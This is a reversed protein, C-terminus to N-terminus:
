GSISLKKERQLVLIMCHFALASTNKCESSSIRELVDSNWACKSSNRVKQVQEKGSIWYFGHWLYM